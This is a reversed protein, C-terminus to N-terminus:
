IHLEKKIEKALWSRILTQYPVSKMTAIKKIAQVHLPDLKITINKLQHKRKGRLISERLTDELSLEVPEDEIERLINRRDYWAASPNLKEFANLNNKNKM